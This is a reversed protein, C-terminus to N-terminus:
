DGAQSLFENWLPDKPPNATIILKEHSVPHEFRLCRAHLHIGGQPNSRPYGYKLDGRVPSGIKSLQCRIQHHRGTHLDIELLHYQNTRGILRYSLRAEKSGKRPKNFAFSKNKKEDRIVFHVLEGEIEPPPEKVVAWYTKSIEQDRFLRNMRSLAKSTRAFLVVGTVPRDLRHVVGLFVEGPKHYKKKLYDKVMQDLSLDGSRDGQVLDSGRKNIAILHNDEYLIDM